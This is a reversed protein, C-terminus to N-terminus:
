EDIPDSQGAARPSETGPDCLRQGRQQERGDAGLQCQERDGRRRKGTDSEGTKNQVEHSDRQHRYGMHSAQKRHTDAHRAFTESQDQAIACVQRSEADNFGGSQDIQHRPQRPTDGSWSREHSDPVVEPPPHQELSAWTLDYPPAASIRPPGM